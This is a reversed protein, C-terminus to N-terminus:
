VSQLERILIKRKERRISELWKRYESSIKDCLDGRICIDGISIVGPRLYSPNFNLHFIEYGRKEIYKVCMEGIEELTPQENM